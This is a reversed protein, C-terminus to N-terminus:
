KQDIQRFSVFFFLFSYILFSVLFSISQLLNGLNQFRHLWGFRKSSIPLRYAVENNSTHIEYGLVFDQSRWRQIDAIRSNRNFQDAQQKKLESKL